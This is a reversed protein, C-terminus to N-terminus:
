FCVKGFELEVLFCTSSSGSLPHLFEYPTSHTEPPHAVHLELDNNLLIKKKKKCIPM